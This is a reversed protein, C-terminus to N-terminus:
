LGHKAWVARVQEGTAYDRRAAAEKSRAIAEREADSLPVRTPPESGALQLILRAIKDQEADPLLRVVDLAQDLLKTM